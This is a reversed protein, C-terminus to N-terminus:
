SSDTVISKGIILAGLPVKVFDTKGVSDDESVAEIVSIPEVGMKWDVMHGTRVSFRVSFTVEQANKKM